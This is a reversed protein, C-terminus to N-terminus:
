FSTDDVSDLDFPLGCCPWHVTSKHVHALSESWYNPITLLITVAQKHLLHYEALDTWNLTLIVIRFPFFKYTKKIALIRLCQVSQNEEKVTKAFLEQEVAVKFRLQDTSFLCSNNKIYNKYIWQFFLSLCVIKLPWSWQHIHM